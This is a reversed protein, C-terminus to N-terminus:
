HTLQDLRGTGATRVHGKRVERSKKTGGHRKGDPAQGM